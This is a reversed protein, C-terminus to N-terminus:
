WRPSIGQNEIAEFLSAYGEMDPLVWRRRLGELEMIRRHEPEDWSMALLHEVWPRRVDEPLTDLATFNCHSYRPSRWFEALAGPMLEERGIAEWTNIGIAAADAEDDMLLRIADLESRGTDGHKGIDSEQRVFEVEGDALGADRLYQVPLIAAQASDRSGLALRRGRLDALEDFENGARTVFVTQFAADVDRMALAQCRGDTQFVTRAWAVNTNWAVDITGDLLADVQRGYNSFLVFDTEIPGDAFYDRLGEWILVINPTYAVAGVLLSEAM